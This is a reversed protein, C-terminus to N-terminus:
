HLNEMTVYGGQFSGFVAYPDPEPAYNSSTRADLVTGSATGQQSWSIGRAIGRYTPARVQQIGPGQVFTGDGIVAIAVVLDFDAGTLRDTLTATGQVSARKQAFDVTLQVPQDSQQNVASMVFQNTCLDYQDINFWVDHMSGSNTDNDSYTGNVISWYVLTQVCGLSDVSSFYGGASEFRTLSHYVPTSTAAASAPLLLLLALLLVALMVRKM